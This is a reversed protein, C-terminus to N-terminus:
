GKEGVPEGSAALRHEQIMRNIRYQAAMAGSGPDTLEGILNSIVDAFDKLEAFPVVVFGDGVAPAPAAHLAAKPSPANAAWWRACKLCDLGDPSTGGCTPCFALTGNVPCPWGGSWDKFQTELDRERIFAIMNTAWARYNIEDARLREGVGGADVPVPSAALRKPCRPCSEPMPPDNDPNCCTAAGPTSRSQQLATAPLYRIAAEFAPVWTEWLEQGGRLVRYPREGRHSLLEAVAYKISGVPAASPPATEPKSM